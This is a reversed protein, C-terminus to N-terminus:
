SASEGRMLSAVAAEIDPQRMLTEGVLVGAVGADQLRQIDDHTRIGSESILLVDDPVNVKLDFTHDLTTEFTKLNRNNIGVLETGTALVRPLNQPEYLEILTQMGLDHAYRHLDMLQEDTLCEAILLCCDAGAVRAEAIQYRDIIFEKRMIPVSVRQRIDKLFDLHGQFFHEDTLVSLCNAGASEYKQAIEVPEFDERIVGASPSAKKVEAILGPSGQALAKAFDRVPPSGPLASELDSFPRNQRADAVEQRKHAIITDLVTSM